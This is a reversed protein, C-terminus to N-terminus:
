DASPRIVVDRNAYQKVFKKLPKYNCSVADTLVGHKERAADEGMVVADLCLKSEVNTNEAVLTIVEPAEQEDNEVNYRKAFSTISMGNCFTSVVFRKYNEDHSEIFDKAADIGDVAAIKCAKTEFNDNVAKFVVNSASASLSAFSLVAVTAITSLKM